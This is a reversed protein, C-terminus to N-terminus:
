DAVSISHSLFDTETVALFCLVDEAYSTNEGEGKMKIRESQLCSADSHTNYRHVALLRHVNHFHTTSIFISMQRTTIGKALCSVM